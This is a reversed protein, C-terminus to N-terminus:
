GVKKEHVKEASNQTQEENIIHIQQFKAFYLNLKAQERKHQEVKRTIPPM